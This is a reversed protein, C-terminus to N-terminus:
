LLSVSHAVEKFASSVLTAASNEWCATQTPLPCRPSAQWFWFTATRWPAKTWQSVSSLFFHNKSDSGSSNVDTWGFDLSTVFPGMLVAQQSVQPHTTLLSSGSVYSVKEHHSQIIWNSSGLSYGSSLPSVQVAGFLEQLLFSAMVTRDYVCRWRGESSRAWHEGWLWSWHEWWKRHTVWLSCKASPLTSRRCATADSGRGCM